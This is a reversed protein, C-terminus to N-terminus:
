DAFADMIIVAIQDTVRDVTIVDNHDDDLMILITYAIARSHSYIIPAMLEDNNIIARADYISVLTNSIMFGFRSERDRDTFILDFENIIANTIM